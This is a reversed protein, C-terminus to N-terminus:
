WERRGRTDGDGGPGLYAGEVRFTVKRGCAPCEHEYIGPQLSIMSPPDHDSHRCREWDPLDAIKRLPM